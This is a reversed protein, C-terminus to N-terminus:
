KRTGKSRDNRAGAPAVDGLEVYVGPSLETAFPEAPDEGVAHFAPVSAGALLLGLTLTLKM